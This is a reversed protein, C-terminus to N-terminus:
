STGASPSLTVRLRWGTPQLPGAEVVGGAEAVRERLGSLGNGAALAGGIGDDVIEVEAASLRIECSSARAHRVINTLGERVVWAFLEQHAPAVVDIARPLEAAIGAARLLERGAALEAALTVDRYSTVAARMDGLTQRALTEVEAIERLADRTHDAAALRGALGAKVTITTLSHGLLDHLDRAIRIRENEAALLALEARAEALAHNGRMVQMIAFTLLAAIPIAVPTIDAFSKALSVHWSTVAIPVVLAAVALGAVLPASRAGLRGVALITLLVCMVFAAARAFPLEALFLAGLLGFYLWFRRATTEFTLVLPSALWCVAFAAAAAYGAAQWYGRSNESVAPVLYVLYIAPLGAMAFRRWGQGWRRQSAVWQAEAPTVPAVEADVNM